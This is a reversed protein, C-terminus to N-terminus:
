AKTCALNLRILLNVMDRSIQSMKTGRVSATVCATDRVSVFRLLYAETM